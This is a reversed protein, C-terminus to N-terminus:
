NVPCVSGQSKFFSTLMQFEGSSGCKITVYFSGRTRERERKSREKKIIAEDIELPLEHFKFWLCNVSKM